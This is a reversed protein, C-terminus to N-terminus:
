GSRWLLARVRRAFGNNCTCFQTPRMCTYCLTSRSM